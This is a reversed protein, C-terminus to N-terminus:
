EINPRVIFTKTEREVGFWRVGSSCLIGSSGESGSPTRGYEDDLLWQKLVNWWLKSGDEQRIPSNLGATASQLNCPGASGGDLVAPFFM